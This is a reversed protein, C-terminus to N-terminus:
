KQLVRRLFAPIDHRRRTKVERLKKGIQQHQEHKQTLETKLAKLQPTYKKLLGEATVAEQKRKSTLTTVSQLV